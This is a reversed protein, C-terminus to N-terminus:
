ISSFRLRGFTYKVDYDHLAGDPGDTRVMFKGDRRSFTSTLGAYSFRANKFDGAVSADTAPQMALDHHSGRWGQEAHQHCQGCIQQGVYGGAPRVASVAGALPARPPRGSHWWWGGAAIALVVAAGIGLM